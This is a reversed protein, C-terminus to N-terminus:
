FYGSIFVFLPMHFSSIPFWDSFLGIGGVHGVVVLIIGITQLILMQYNLKKM